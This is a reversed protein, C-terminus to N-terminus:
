RCLRKGAGASTRWVKRSRWSPASSSLSWRSFKGADPVTSPAPVNKPPSSALTANLRRSWNGIVTYMRMGAASTHVAHSRWM